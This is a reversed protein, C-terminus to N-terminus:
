AIDSKLGSHAGFRVDVLRKLSAPATLLVASVRVIWGSGTADAARRQSFCREAAHLLAVINAGRLEPLCVFVQLLTCWDDVVKMANPIDPRRDRERFHM